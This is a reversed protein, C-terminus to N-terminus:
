TIGDGGLGYFFEKLAEPPFNRMFLKLMKDMERESRTRYNFTETM